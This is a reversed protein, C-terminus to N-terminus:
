LCQKVQNFSNNAQGFSNNAQLLIRLRISHTILQSYGTNAYSYILNAVNFSNNLKYIVLTRSPLLVTLCIFCSFQSSQLAGNAFSAANDPQLYGTNAYAYRQILVITHRLESILLVTQFIAANNAQLYGLIQM